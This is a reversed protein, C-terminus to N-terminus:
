DLRSLLESPRIGSYFLGSYPGLLSIMCVLSQDRGLFNGEERVVGVM